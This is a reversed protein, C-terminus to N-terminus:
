SPQSLSAYIPLKPSPDKYLLIWSVPSKSNWHRKFLTPAAVNGEKHSSLSYPHQVQPTHM